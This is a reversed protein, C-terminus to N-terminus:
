LLRVTHRGTSLRGFVIRHLFLHLCPPYYANIRHYRRLRRRRDFSHLMATKSISYLQQEIGMVGNLAYDACM